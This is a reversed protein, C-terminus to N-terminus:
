GKEQKGPHHKSYPAYEEDAESNENFTSPILGISIKPLLEVTELRLPNKSVSRSRRTFQKPVFPEPKTRM